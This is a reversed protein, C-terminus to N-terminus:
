QPGGDHLRHPTARREDPLAPPEGEDFGLQQLGVGHHSARGSQEQALALL